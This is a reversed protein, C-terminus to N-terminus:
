DNADVLEGDIFNDDEDMAMLPTEVFKVLIATSELKKGDSTIDMQYLGAVKALESMASIKDRNSSTDADIISSLVPIRELYNLRATERVLERQEKINTLRRQEIEHKTEARIKRKEIAHKQKRSLLKTESNQSSNTQSQEM